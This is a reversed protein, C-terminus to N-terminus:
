PLYPFLQMFIACVATGCLTAVCSSVFIPPYGDKLKLDAIEMNIVVASSWPLEDIISSAFCSVRHIYALSLGAKQCRELVLPVAIRISSSSSGTIAAILCVSLILIFGVPVNLNFIGDIMSQFEPLTQVVATFGVISAVSGTPIFAMKGGISVSEKLESMGGLYPYFLIVSVMWSIMTATFIDLAFFNFLLLLLLLPAFAKMFGPRPKDEIPLLDKPGYEFRAGRKVDNKIMLTLLSTTVIIEVIIAVIGGYFGSYSPTGLIQMALINVIEASGPGTMAFTYVGCTLIGMVFRKPIDAREMIRLAIPYTAILTVLSNMGCYCVIGSVAILALIASIYKRTQSSGEKFMANAMKDAITIVAGSRSFVQALLSGSFIAPFLALFMDCFKVFYTNSMTESYPLGNLVIVVAAAAIGVILPSWNRMMLIMVIAIGIFISIYGLM